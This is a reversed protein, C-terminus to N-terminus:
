INQDPTLLNLTHPSTSILVPVAGAFDGDMQVPESVSSKISVTEGKLVRTRKQSGVKGRIISLLDGLKGLFTASDFIVIVFGKEDIAAAAALLFKGAYYKGNSVVVWSGQYARDDVVVELRSFSKGFLLRVAEWIYAGKGFYAKLNKSVGVVVRADFGVSAMMLFLKGNMSGLHIRRSWGYAITEAIFQPEMRLGIEAALVNATGSPIIGLPVESGAMGNAIENITGDGGSAIVCDFSGSELAARVLTEAHGAERTEGIEIAFGFNKLRGLTSDFLARGGGAKPNCVVFANKRM